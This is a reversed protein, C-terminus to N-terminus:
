RTILSQFPMKSMWMLKTWTSILKRKVLTTLKLIDGMCVRKRFLNNTKCINMASIDLSENHLCIKM